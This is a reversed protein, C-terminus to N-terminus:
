TSTASDRVLSGIERRNKLDHKLLINSVHRAVTAESLVLRAAIDANTAGQSIFVAIETERPTLRATTHEGAASAAGLARLHAEIRALATPLQLQGALARARTLQRVAQRREHVSRFLEGALLRWRMERWYIEAGRFRDARRVARDAARRRRELADSPLMRSHAEALVWRATVRLSCSRHWSPPMAVRAFAVAEHPQGFVNALEARFLAAWRPVESDSGLDPLALLTAIGAEAAARDEDLLARVVRYRAASRRLMPEDGIEIGAVIRDALIPESMLMMRARSHALRASRVPDWAAVIDVVRALSREAERYRLRLDYAIAVQRTFAARICAGADREEIAAALAADGVREADAIRQESLLAHVLYSRALALLDRRGSASFAAVARELPPVAPVSTAPQAIVAAAGRWLDAEPGDPVDAWIAILLDDRGHDALLRSLEHRIRAREEPERATGLALMLRTQVDRSAEAPVLAFRRGCEACRLEPGLAGACAPCRAVGPTPSM